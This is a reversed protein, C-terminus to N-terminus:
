YVERFLHNYTNTERQDDCISKSTSPTGQIETRLDETNGM